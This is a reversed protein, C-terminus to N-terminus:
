KFSNPIHFLPLSLPHPNFPTDQVFYLTQSFPTFSASQRRFMHMCTNMSLRKLRTQSKTAGHVTAGLSRQGHPEGPLSIPHTAMEEELPVERPHTAM